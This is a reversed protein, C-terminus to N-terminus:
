HLFIVQRSMDISSNIIERLRKNKASGLFGLVSKQKLLSDLFIALEELRNGLITCIDGLEQRLKESKDLESKVNENETRLKELTIEATEM